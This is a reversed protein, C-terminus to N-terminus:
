SSGITRIMKEYVRLTSDATIKASFKEIVRKRGEHGLRAAFQRDQLLSAISNALAASDKPPILLGNKGSEILEPTDSGNGAVLPTECSMAELVIMPCNESISPLIYVNALSYVCAM